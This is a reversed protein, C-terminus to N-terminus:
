GEGEPDPDWELSNEMIDETEFRIFEMQLLEYKKLL